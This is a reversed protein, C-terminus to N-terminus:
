YEQLNRWATASPGADLGTLERLASLAARQYPTIADAWSPQLLEQYIRAEQDTVERTRVLFDYRQLEPWPAADAVPLKVSFDQRLYTIDFRVLIDPSSPRYYAVMSESPVPVQATLPALKETEEKSAGDRNSTAPAHCLLCNHHHNIRVLERVVTAKKGNKATTQPGRPDPKELVEILYPILDTRGLEVIAESSREAVAPWPYTLGALLIDTYDKDRRMKLARVAALRIESEESFIALKALARTADVHALGDLYKVLGLRTEASEPGLMQMLSAVSASPHIEERSAMIEVYHEMLFKPRIPVLGVERDDVQLQILISGLEKTDTVVSNVPVVPVRDSIRAEAKHFVDLAAVFQRSADEKMRCSDGMAFSLGALEPRKSMLTEIFADTKKQNLAHVRDITVATHLQGDATNMAKTLPQQFHVEPVEALDLPLRLVTKQVRPVPPLLDEIRIQADGTIPRISTPDDLWAKLLALNKASPFLRLAKVGELRLQQRHDGDNKSLFDGPLQILRRALEELRRDVPLILFDTDYCDTRQALGQPLKMSHSRVPGGGQNAAIAHRVAKVLEEPTKLIKLDVSVFPPSQVAEAAETPDLPIAPMRGRGWKWPAFLDTKHRAMLQGLEIERVEGVAIEYQWRTEDLVQKDVVGDKCLKEIREFEAKWRYLKSKLRPLVSIDEQEVVPSPKRNLIWVQESKSKRWRELSADSKNCRVAFKLRQAKEGKLTELVDLTVISWVMDADDSTQDAVEVVRGRVVLTADAVLWELSSLQYPSILQAFAVDAYLVGAIVVVYGPMRM